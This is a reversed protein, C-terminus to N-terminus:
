CYREQKVAYFRDKIAKAQKRSKEFEETTEKDRARVVELREVAKMNPAMHELQDLLDKIKKQLDRELEDSNDDKLDDPLSSYEIEIGWDPIETRLMGDDEVDMSDPDDRRVVFDAKIPVADITGASMPISIEELKCKRLLSYRETAANEIETEHVGIDKAQADIEARVLDVARKLKIVKSQMGEYKAKATQHEARLQALEKETRKIDNEIQQKESQLEVLQAKDRKIGSDLRRLRESTEQLREQEFTRRGQLSSMQRSYENRRAAHEKALGGQQEEYTRINTVKIRKCFADFIKDEIKHWADATAAEEKQLKAIEADQKKLQPKLASLEKERHKLEEEKSKV